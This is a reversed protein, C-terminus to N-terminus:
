PVPPTATWYFGSARCYSPPALADAVAAFMLADRDVVVRAAPGTGVVGIYWARLLSRLQATLGRGQKDAAALLAEATSLGHAEAFESLEKVRKPFGDDDAAFAAFLQGATEASLDSRGTLLRSLDLFTARPPRNRDTQDALAPPWWAAGIITEVAGVLARRRTFGSPAERGIGMAM